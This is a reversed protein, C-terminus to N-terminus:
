GKGEGRRRKELSSRARAPSARGVRPSEGALEGGERHGPTMLSARVRVGERGDKM